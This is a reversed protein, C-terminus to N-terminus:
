EGKIKKLPFSITFKTGINKISEVTIDGQMKQCLNKVIWLGLGTGPIGSTEKNKIRYFKEFLNQQEEGSIGIGTDKISFYYKKKSEEIWEEIEIKGKNTYKIANEILNTLIERFRNINVKIVWDAKEGQKKIQYNFVIGKNEIRTKISDIIEAIIASPFIDESTLDLVQHEIKIVKLIDYILESLSKASISVRELDEKREVLIKDGIEEKLCEIYARINTIPSQLEHIAMRFFSERIKDIEQLEKSLKLYQFLRTHHFILFLVLFIAIMAVIYSIQAVRAIWLDANKLSLKLCILAIKEGNENKLLKATKWFREGKSGVLHAIDQEQHWALTLSPDSIEKAIKEQEQSAIIKFKGDQYVIIQLDSIEPVQKSIKNVQEQLFESESIKESIFEGLINEITLAKEQLVFDINKEFSTIVFITNGWLVLPLFVILFLSYLISPNQKIFWFIRKLSDFM